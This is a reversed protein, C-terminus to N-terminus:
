RRTLREILREISTWDRGEQLMARCYGPHLRCLAPFPRSDSERCVPASSCALSTCKSCLRARVPDTVGLRKGTRWRIASRTSCRLIKPRAAVMNEYSDWEGMVCYTRAGTKIM